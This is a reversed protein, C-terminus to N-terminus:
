SCTIALLIFLRVEENVFPPRSERYPNDPGAVEGCLALDPQQDTISLDLRNPLRYTTCRCGFGGRTLAVLQGRIRVIRVNYSNVKENVWFPADFQEEVWQQLALIYGIRPYGYVIEWDFMASGRPVNRNNAVFRANSCLM